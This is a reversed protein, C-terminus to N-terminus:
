TSQHCFTWVRMSRQAKASQKTVNMSESLFIDQDATIAHPVLAWTQRAVESVASAICVDTQPLAVDFAYLIRSDVGCSPAVARM